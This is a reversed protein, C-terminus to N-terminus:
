KLKKTLSKKFEKLILRQEKRLLRLRKRRLKTYHKHLLRLENIKEKIGKTM